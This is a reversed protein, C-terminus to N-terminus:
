DIAAGPAGMSRGAKARNRPTKPRARRRQARGLVRDIEALLIRPLCPKVVYADCGADVARVVSSGEVHGTCVIVPTRRTAPDAKLRRTAEWGDVHPLSLDMIVVDPRLDRALHLAEEASSAAEVRLGHLSLYQAYM